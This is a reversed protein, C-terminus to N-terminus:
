CASSRHWCVTRSRACADLWAARAADDLAEAEEYLASLEQWDAVADLIM